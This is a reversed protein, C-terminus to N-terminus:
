DGGEGGGHGKGHGHHKEGKKQGPPQPAPATQTVRPAAPRASDSRLRALVRAAGVRLAQADSDSIAGSRRLRALSRRFDDVARQAAPADRGAAATRVAELQTLLGQRQAATLAQTTTHKGSSGCGALAVVVALIM